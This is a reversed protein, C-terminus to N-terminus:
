DPSLSLVRLYEGPARKAPSKGQEGDEDCAVHTVSKMNRAPLHAAQHHGTGKVDQGDRGSRYRTHSPKVSSDRNDEPFQVESAHLFCVSTRRDSTDM